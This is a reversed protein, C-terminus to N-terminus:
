PIGDRSTAEEPGESWDVQNVKIAGSHRALELVLRLVDRVNRVTGAGAGKSTLESMLAVVTPHDIHNVPTDEFRPLLHRRLISEYSERTKPTLGAITPVWRDTWQGFTEKGLQPDLWEGRTIDAEVVNAFKQADAKRQFTRTWHRQDPDRYRVDWRTEGTATQRREISAM